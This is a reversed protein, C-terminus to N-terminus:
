WGKPYIKQNEKLYICVHVYVTQQPNTQKKVFVLACQIYIYKSKLLKEFHAYKLM